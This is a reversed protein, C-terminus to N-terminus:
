DQRPGASGARLNALAREDSAIESPRQLRRFVRRMLRWTRPLMWAVVALFLLLLGLFVLPYQLMLWSGALVLGDEAFSAIWNSVPEPSHNLTARTATKALHTGTVITGGILAAALQAAEGQDGLAAWALAAGAPLRIFTHLADWASDFLPVKDAIFEGVLMVGSAWLVWDHELLTLEGPLSVYDFRGLMGFLFVVAYLRIGSAWALGSALAFQAILEM